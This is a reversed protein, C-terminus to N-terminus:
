MGFEIATFRGQEFGQSKGKRWSKHLKTDVFKYQDPLRGMQSIDLHQIQIGRLASALTLLMSLTLYLLKYSLVNNFPWNVKIHELVTQVDWVFTYKPQPPCLYGQCLKGVKDNSGM